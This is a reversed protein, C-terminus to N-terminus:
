RVLVANAASDHCESMSVASRTPSWRVRAESVPIDQGADVQERPGPRARTGSRSEGVGCALSRREPKESWAIARAACRAPLTIPRGMMISRRDVSRAAAYAAINLASCQCYAASRASCRRYM